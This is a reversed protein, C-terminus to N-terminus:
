GSDSGDPLQFSVLFTPREEGTGGAELQRVSFLLNLVFLIAGIEAVQAPEAPAVDHAIFGVQGPLGKHVHFRAVLGEVQQMELLQFVIFM